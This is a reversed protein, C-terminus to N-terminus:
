CLQDGAGTREMRQPKGWTATRSAPIREVSGGSLIAFTKQDKKEFFSQKSQKQSGGACESGGDSTVAPFRVM